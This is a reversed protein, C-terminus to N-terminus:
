ASWCRAPTPAACYASSPPRLWTSVRSWRERTRPSGDALWAAAKAIYEPFRDLHDSVLVGRMTLRETVM